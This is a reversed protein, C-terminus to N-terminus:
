YRLYDFHSLVTMEVTNKNDYHSQRDVNKKIIVKFVIHYILPM